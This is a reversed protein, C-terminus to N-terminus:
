SELRSEAAILKATINVAQLEDVKTTSLAGASAQAEIDAMIITLLKNLTQLTIERSTYQM